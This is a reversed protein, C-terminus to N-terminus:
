VVLDIRTVVKCQVVGKVRWIWRQFTFRLYHGNDAYEKIIAEGKGMAKCESIPNVKKRVSADVKGM